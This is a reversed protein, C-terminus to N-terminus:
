RTPGIPVFLARDAWTLVLRAAPGEGHEVAFTLREVPDTLKVQSLTVRGLNQAPDYTLHSQGVQRNIVLTASEAEPVLYLSYRGRPVKLGGITMDDTLEITSAEDAGPMWVRQWPVLGGWIERGRASPAGYELRIGRGEVFVEITQRPSLRGPVTGAAQRPRAGGLVSRPPAAGLYVDFAWPGVERGRGDDVRAGFRFWNGWEDRRRFERYNLSIAMLGVDSLRSLERVQSVGDHNRDIWLRVDVFRRDGADFSGNNNGGAARTDFVALAEFGNPDPSMPQPTFNGFLESGDDIRGNWNRDLVLWADDSGAQTWPIREKTGGPLLDFEVGNDRNTLAFGNGTTDLIIPSYCQTHDDIGDCNNDISEPPLEFCCPVQASHNASPNDPQCDTIDADGDHDRDPLGWNNDFMTNGGGTLACNAACLMPM